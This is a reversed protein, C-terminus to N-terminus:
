TDNAGHDQEPSAEQSVSERDAPRHKRHKKPRLLLVTVIILAIFLLVLIGLLIGQEANRQRQLKARYAEEARLAALREQEKREAEKREAELREQEKREAELREAELREQEKREAELREQEKREAELREAELREQELREAEAYTTLHEFFDNKEEDPGVTTRYLGYERPSYQEVNAACSYYSIYKFFDWYQSKHCTYGLDRTVEFATMGGFRELPQDWDMVIPNEEYLHFYTKPVDWAGYTQASEPYQTEDMSLTIAEALLDAYVMHQGHGYEGAFDHGIAVLPKFRRLQEVVWGLMEERPWGLIDFSYYAMEMTPQLFDNYEGFVPYATIGVAWLGNLAEHIRVDTQNRHDTLYVVQVQYGLEGAYYPLIGAFFIQEDDAHTSFLVLDTKGDMPDQWKQVFDPTTGETFIYLEYIAVSGNDFNLTVSTPAEGFLAVLDIFEHIYMSQGCTRSEGTANDTVTYAGYEKGFCIYLSGLGAEYTLTLSANGNSYHGESDVEDFFKWMNTFGSHATIIDYGSIDEALGPDQSIPDEAEDAAAYLPLLLSFILLLATIRRLLIKM